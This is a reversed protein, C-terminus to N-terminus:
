RRRRPCTTDNCTISPSYTTTGAFTCLTRTRRRSLVDMGEDLTAGNPDSATGGLTVPSGEVGVYPGGADASLLANM